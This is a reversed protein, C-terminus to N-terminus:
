KQAEELDLQNLLSRFEGGSLNALEALSEAVIAVAVAHAQARNFGEAVLRIKCDRIKEEVHSFEIM